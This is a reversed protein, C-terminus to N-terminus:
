RQAEIRMGGLDRDEPLAVIQENGDLGSLVEVQEGRPRGLTVYRLGAVRSSDVVYVGQLQGRQVVASRPVLVAAREGRSFRARGFLGSRLRADASLDIKVLFSRTAPDAAPVIQTVKGMLEHDLADIRVPVQSGMRALSIDAEDLNAELRYRRPDEISFLPMGPSALTGTDAKKETVIGDFPARVRTYDLATRAQAWAAHAQAEGAQAMDYRAQASQSRAKVEDFEQPSVSKKDFLDQYRKLTTQSLNLDSQAARIEQQAATAAATARDLAARPQADDIVALVQGRRVGDGEHVRVELINGMMQSAVQSSQSAHVTGVAELYDPVNAKRAATVEGRVVERPATAETHNGSCGSLGALVLLILLPASVSISKRINM